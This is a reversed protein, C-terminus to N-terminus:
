KKFDNVHHNEKINLTLDIFKKNFNEDRILLTLHFQM